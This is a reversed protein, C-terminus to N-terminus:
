GRAEGKSLWLFYEQNGRPGRLPAPVEGRVGLGLGRASAVVQEVAARQTAPDRVVGGKGVQSRGVEFQPKVLVVLQGGPRVCAAVAPLVKTVSIFSVDITALDVPEGLERPELHRVNRGEFLVVRPDQRLRWHVLGRGVDLAYVRKAGRQLLCDTFGGTSAGVDLAVVGEVPLGFADLAGALKQGGRSVYPLDATVEVRVAPDVLTGAKTMPQAGVRVRGALILAAARERSPALGREVLLRDLRVKTRPGPGSM